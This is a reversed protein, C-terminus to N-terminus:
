DPKHRKIHCNACVLDCKELERMLRPFSSISLIDAKRDSPDRHHFQLVREDEEGCDVCFGETRLDKVHQRVKRQYNKIRGATAM